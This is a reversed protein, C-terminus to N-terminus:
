QSQCLVPHLKLLYKYVGALTYSSMIWFFLNNVAVGLFLDM